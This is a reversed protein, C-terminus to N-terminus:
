RKGRARKKPKKPALAWGDQEAWANIAVRMAARVQDTTLSTQHEGQEARFRLDKRCWLTVAAAEDYHSM